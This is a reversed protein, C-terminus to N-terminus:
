ETKSEIVLKVNLLGTEPEFKMVLIALFFRLSAFGLVNRDIFNQNLYVVYRM